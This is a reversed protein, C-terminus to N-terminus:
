WDACINSIPGLEHLIAGDPLNKAIEESYFSVVSPVTRTFVIREDPLIVAQELECMKQTIRSSFEMLSLHTVDLAAPLDPMPSQRYQQYERNFVRTRLNNLRENM